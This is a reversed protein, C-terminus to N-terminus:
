VRKLDMILRVEQIMRMRAPLNMTHIEIIPLLFWEEFVKEEIWLLVDYGTKLGGLDHDLSLATVEGTKLHEIVKKYTRVLIWGDEKLALPLSRMDDLYIKM